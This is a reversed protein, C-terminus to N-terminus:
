QPTKIIKVPKAFSQIYAYDLNILLPTEFASGGAIDFSCVIKGRGNNMRVIGDLPKCDIISGGSLDVAYEVKDLDTYELAIQGCNKIDANPSLVRGSDFNAINIEFIARSGVMEVNVNSVGVPAGQGGSMGVDTPNCAKQEATVQYLIPDVCVMPSAITHYNYCSIFNLKPNYDFVGEPLSVDSSAFEIQNFGGEVNYVSKGELSGLNESCSHVQQIGRIINADFGTMQVFCDQPGLNYNGKNKVEVIAVLQNQDYIMPPPYNPVLSVEVGRTGTKVMNLAAETSEPTDGANIRSCSVLLISFLVLSFM